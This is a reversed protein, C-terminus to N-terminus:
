AALYYSSTNPDFSYADKTEAVHKPVRHFIGLPQRKLDNVFVLEARNKNDLTLISEQSYEQAKRLLLAFDITEINLKIKFSEEKVGKYCGIISNFFFGQSTLWSKFESERGNAAMIIFRM